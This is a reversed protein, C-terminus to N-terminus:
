LQFSFNQFNVIFFFPTQGASKTVRPSWIQPLTEQRYFTVAVFCVRNKAASNGTIQYGIEQGLKTPAHLHDSAGLVSVVIEFFETM